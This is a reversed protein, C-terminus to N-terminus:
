YRGSLDLFDNGDGGLLRNNGLSGSASLSDNGTGGELTNNGSSRSDQGPSNPSYNVYGRISLFDNGDDGLLLNDGLSGGASLTDNGFGGSITDNGFGGSIIDNGGNGRLVNNASNGNITDNGSGGNANEILSRSDGNFQLANFVHGRAYNGDGLDARQFNGGVDLNTWGGPELNIALNTTYNSFNYTDNGNGDWITRFIRNDGPTGQGIGNVFMEGTTTSFTYTTNGSNYNFNAGYMQQIARIDYMMLSQAYGSPENSYHSKTDGVYSHYTMISFEMSDRNADMAVNSIGGIEQGHKLGLAHGFEHGFGQYAYNGIVPNNYDSTNFWADGAQFSNEPFYAYAAANKFAVPINSEAIRITADRDSADTLEVMNLGSVSEYMDFWQRAVARQTPNLTQFSSSHVSSDPYGLEDEYDNTFNDTFSFTVTNSLWKTGRLLGDINNVNTKTSNTESTTSGYM